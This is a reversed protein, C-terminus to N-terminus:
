MALTCSYDCVSILYSKEMCRKDAFIYSKPVLRYSHEKEQFNTQEVLVVWREAVHKFNVFNPASM